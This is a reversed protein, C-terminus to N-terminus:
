TESSLHLSRLHVGLLNALKEILKPEVVAIDTATIIGVLEENKIVPLKKIKYKVMLEIAKEIQTNPDVTIVWRTMVDLIKLQGTDKTNEKSMAKIIDRETLIGVIKNNKTVVLSGVENDIMIRIAERVKMESDITIVKRNMVEKVLM